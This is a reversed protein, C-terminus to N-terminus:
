KANKIKRRTPKYGNIFKQEIEKLTINSKFTNKSDDELKKLELFYDNYNLWLDYLDAMCQKVCFWCGGRFSKNYIPSILNYPTCIDFAM